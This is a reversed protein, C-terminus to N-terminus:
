GEGADLETQKASADGNGTGKKELDLDIFKRGGKEGFGGPDESFDDFDEDDDDEDLYFDGCLEHFVAGFTVIVGIAMLLKFVHKKM